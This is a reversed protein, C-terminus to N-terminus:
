DILHAAWELLLTISIMSITVSHLLLHIGTLTIFIIVHEFILLSGFIIHFCSLIESKNKLILTAEVPDLLLSVVVVVDGHFSDLMIMTLKTGDLLILLSIVFVFILYYMVYGSDELLAFTFRSFVANQSLVGTM